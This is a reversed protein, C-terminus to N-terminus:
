AKVTMEEAAALIARALVIAMEPYLRIAGGFDEGGDIEVLGLGDCDPGVKIHGGNDNDCVRRSVEVEYRPVSM